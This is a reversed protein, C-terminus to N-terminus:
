LKANVSYIFSNTNLATITIEIINVAILLYSFAKNALEISISTVKNFILEGFTIFYTIFLQKLEKLNLKFGIDTILTKFIKNFDKLDKSDDGKCNIIYYKFRKKSTTILGDKLKIM